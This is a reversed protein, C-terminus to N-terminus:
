QIRICNVGIFSVQSAKVMLVIWLILVLIGILACFFDGVFPIWGLLVAAVMLTGFVIISQLAHFRVFRNKQELILFIIGTIWAGLYCLLGAVNPELGTMSGGTGASAKERQEQEIRVKEEEYIKKREEPSLQM